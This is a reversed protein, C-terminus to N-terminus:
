PKSVKFTSVPDGFGVLTVRQRLAIASSPGLSTHLMVMRSVRDRTVRLEVIQDPPGCLIEPRGCDPSSRVGLSVRVFKVSWNVLKASAGVKLVFPTELKILAPPAVPAALSSTLGILLAAVLRKM